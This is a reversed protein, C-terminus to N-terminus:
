LVTTDYGSDGCDITDYGNNASIYNKFNPNQVIHPPLLYSINNLFDVDCAYILFNVPLFYLDRPKLSFFNCENFIHIAENTLILSSKLLECLWQKMVTVNLSSVPSIPKQLSLNSKLSKFNPCNLNEINYCTKYPLISNLYKEKELGKVIIETAKCLCSRIINVAQDYEIFGDDWELHHYNLTVIAAERRRLLNLKQFEYPPKFVFHQVIDADFLKSFSFSKVIIEKDNGRFFQIDAVFTNEM